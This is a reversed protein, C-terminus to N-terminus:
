IFKQIFGKLDGSDFDSKEFARMLKIIKEPKMDNGLLRVLGFGFEKNTGFVIVEDISTDTGIYKVTIKLEKSNFKMLDKFKENKLIELVRKKESIYNPDDEGKIQYALINMKKVSKYADKEEDNLSTKDINILSTSLDVAIFNQNDKNEVYYQQLSTSKNCAGLSLLTLLLIAVTQLKKM